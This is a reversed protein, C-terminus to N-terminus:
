KRYYSFPDGNVEAQMRKSIVIQSAEGKHIHKKAKQVKEKFSQETMDSTFNISMPKLPTISPKRYLTQKLLHLREDLVKEDEHDINIAVLFVTENRHEYVILHKYVMLHIDPMDLDDPLS